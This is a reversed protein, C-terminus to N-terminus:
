IFIIMKLFIDIFIQFDRFFVIDKCIYIEFEKMNVSPLWQNKLKNYKLLVLPKM